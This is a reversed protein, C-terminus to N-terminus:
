DPCLGVAAAVADFLRGCSSGLPSNLGRRVMGALADTPKGALYTAVRTGGFEARFGQMGMAAELHAYLTRWPELVARTGGPRPGPKLHALREYDRYDALLFEGGWITGDDGLGLGDLVVGLVPGDDLAVGNEALCAALHAHHHQVGILPLAREGAMRRGHES